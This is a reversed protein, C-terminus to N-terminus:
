LLFTIELYCYTIWKFFGHIHFVVGRAINYVCPEYENQIFGFEKIKCQLSYKLMSINEKIWFISRKLKCVKNPYKPDISGKPQTMYVDGYLNGNLFTTKVDM